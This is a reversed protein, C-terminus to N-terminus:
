RYDNVWVGIGKSSQIQFGICYLISKDFHSNLSTVVSSILLSASMNLTDPVDLRQNHLSPLFWIQTLYDPSHIRLIQWKYFSYPPESRFTVISAMLFKPICRLQWSVFSCIINMSFSRSWWRSTSSRSVQGWQFCLRDDCKFCRHFKSYSENERETESM